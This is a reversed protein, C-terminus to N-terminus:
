AKDTKNCAKIYRYPPMGHHRKFFVSFYNPSSFNMAEAVRNVSIGSLLLKVAEAARLSDYYSKPSVGAYMSFLLKLYSVSISERRAFDELTLNSNLNDEMLRVIKRYERASESDVSATRAKKLSLQIIYVSLMDRVLQATFEGGEGSNVFPILVSMIEELEGIERSDLRFLGGVLEGPLEGVTHFSLTYGQPETGDASQLRHFVLPAHFIIDGAEMTYVNDDETVTVMGDTVVTAEWFDHREGKFIFDSPYSFRFATHFCDIEFKKNIYRDVM